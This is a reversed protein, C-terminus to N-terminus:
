GPRQHWAALVAAEKQAPLGARLTAQREAPLTRFWELTDQCTVELPRFKLGAAVARASSIRGTGEYDGRPAIWIPLTGGEVGQSELFDATVWTFTTDAGTAKKCADLLMGINTKGAPTVLNYPGFVKSEVVHVLWEALDRVDIIQIPNVPEGPALMEGARAVRVPWYTFRDTSDEPGVIYGPRVITARGPFAAEAARECLVKLGGYNEYNSGMTEVIPDALEALPAFEDQDPKREGAYASISSIFVYHAASPALLAASAKVHRPYFGSNDIVADWSRGELQTLGKPSDPDRPQDAPKWDDATKDPDRNGYLIEVEDMFELERGIEKRRQELRGRNFLTVKHGRALAARVTQPGIFGTGGLILITLPARGSARLRALAPSAHGLGLTAAAGAAAARVFDRRTTTM